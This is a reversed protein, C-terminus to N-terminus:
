GTAGARHFLYLITAVISAITIAAFIRERTVRDM